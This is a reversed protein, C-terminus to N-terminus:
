LNRCDIAFFGRNKYLMFAVILMIQKWKTYSINEFSTGNVCGMLSLFQLELDQNEFLIYENVDLFELINELMIERDELLNYCSLVLHMNYSDTEKYCLPCTKCITKMSSVQVLFNILPEEKAIQWLKNPCLNTHIRSFFSLEPNVCLSSHWQKEEEAWISKIVLKSYEKKNFIINCDNFIVDFLKYKKATQLLNKTAFLKETVHVDSIFRYIRNQLSNQDSRHLRGLFLLRCKDIYCQM